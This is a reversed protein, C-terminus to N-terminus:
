NINGNVKFLQFILFKPVNTNEIYKKILTSQHLKGLLSTLCPSQLPVKFPSFPTPAATYLGNTSHEFVVLVRQVIDVCVYVQHTCGYMMPKHLFDATVHDTIDHQTSGYLKVMHSQKGEIDQPTRIRPCQGAHLVTNLIFVEHLNSSFIRVRLQVM